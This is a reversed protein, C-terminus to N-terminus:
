LRVALGGLQCSRGDNRRTHPPPPPVMEFPLNSVVLVYVFSTQLAPLQVCLVNVCKGYSRAAQQETRCISPM